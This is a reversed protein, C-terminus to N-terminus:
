TGAFTKYAGAAALGTGVLQQALGPAAASTTQTTSMAQPVGSLINMYQQLRKYPDNKQETFDQYSLDLKQQNLAQEQAATSQQMALRQADAQQQASGINTLTQAM